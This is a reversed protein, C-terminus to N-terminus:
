QQNYSCHDNYGFILIKTLFMMIIINKNYNFFKSKGDDTARTNCGEKGLTQAPWRCNRQPHGCLQGLSM